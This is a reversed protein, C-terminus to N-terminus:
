RNNVSGAHRGPGTRGRGPLREGRWLHDHAKLRDVIYLCGDEDLYGIDGSHFWDDDFAARNASPNNWYGATVNPGRVVIEGSEGASAPVHTAADVVRVETFPMPIDASGIKKLTREVPLHTAFPATETLGWAQQLMVGYRAYREILAPPM